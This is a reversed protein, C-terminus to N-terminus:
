FINFVGHWDPDHVNHLVTLIFSASWSRWTLAIWTNLFLIYVHLSHQRISTIRKIGPKVVKHESVFYLCDHCMSYKTYNDAKEVWNIQSANHYCTSWNCYIIIILLGYCNDPLSLLVIYIIFTNIIILLFKIKELIKIQFINM